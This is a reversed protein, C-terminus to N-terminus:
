RVRYVNHIESIIGLLLIKPRTPDTPVYHLEHGELLIVHEKLWKLIRKELM